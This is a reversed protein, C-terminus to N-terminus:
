ACFGTFPRPDHPFVGGQKFHLLLHLLELFIPRINVLSIKRVRNSPGQKFDENM